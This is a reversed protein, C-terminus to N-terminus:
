KLILENGLIKDWEFPQIKQNGGDHHFTIEGFYLEGDLDYWDIRVYSFPKALKESLSIMLDLTNPKEIDHESPGTSKGNEKPSSWTFPERKWSTNYWNRFHNPTDRGMDVQIMRVKGNFCHLKYDFPINGNKDQLLKEVIIRREINKYQWEKSKTYYNINLREKLKSQIDSWNAKEKDRIIIGGGSDHNAKIIFPKNPLNSSNIEETKKTEFYLPVLYKNDIHKGVYDRVKFKDACITHLDTRDNLKLWIIKENLTKPHNLDPYFGHKKKFRRKLYNKETSIKLNYIAYLKQLFSGFATNYYVKQIISM